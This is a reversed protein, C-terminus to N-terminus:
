DAGGGARDRVGGSPRGVRGASTGGTFTRRAGHSDVSATRGSCGLDLRGQATPADNTARGKSAPEATCRLTNAPDPEALRAVLHRPESHFRDPPAPPAPHPPIQC